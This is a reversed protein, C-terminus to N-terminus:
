GCVLIWVYDVPAEPNEELTRAGTPDGAMAGPILALIMSLMVLVLVISLQRRGIPTKRGIKVIEM